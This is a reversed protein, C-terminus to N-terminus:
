FYMGGNKPRLNGRRGHPTLRVFVQHQEVAGACLVARTVDDPLASQVLRPVAKHRKKRLNSRKNLSM